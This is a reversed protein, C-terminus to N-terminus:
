PNQTANSTKHSQPAFNTPATQIRFRGQPGAKQRVGIVLSHPGANQRCFFSEALTHLKPDALARLLCRTHIRADWVSPLSTM